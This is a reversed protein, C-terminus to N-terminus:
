DDEPTDPVPGADPPVSADNGGDQVPPESPVDPPQDCVRALRLTDEVWTGDVCFLLDCVEYCGRDPCYQCSGPGPFDCPVGHLGASNEPCVSGVADSISGQDADGADVAAGSGASSGDASCASLTMALVLVMDICKM